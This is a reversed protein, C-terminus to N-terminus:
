RFSKYVLASLCADLAPFEAAAIVALVLLPVTEFQRLALSGLVLHAAFLMVLVFWFRSTRWSRRNERITYGFVIATLGAFAMWKLPLVPSGGTRGQHLGFAGAAAVVVAAILTYLVVDL